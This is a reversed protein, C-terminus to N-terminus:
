LMSHTLAVRQKIKRLGNNFTSVNAGTNLTISSINLPESISASDCDGKDYRQQPCHVSSTRSMVSPKTIFTM